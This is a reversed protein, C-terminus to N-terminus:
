KDKAFALLNFRMFCNLLPRILYLNLINKDFIEDLMKKCTKCHEIVMYDGLNKNNPSELLFM